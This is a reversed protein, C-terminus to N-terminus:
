HQEMSVIAADLEGAGYEGYALVVLALANGPYETL